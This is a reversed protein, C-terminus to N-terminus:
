FSFMAETVSVGGMEIDM